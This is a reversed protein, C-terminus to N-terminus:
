KVKSSEAITSTLELNSLLEGIILGGLGSPYFVSFCLLLLNRAADRSCAMMIIVKQPLM